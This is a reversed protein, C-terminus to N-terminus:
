NEVGSKSLRTNNLTYNQTKLRGSTAQTWDTFGSHVTGNLVDLKRFKLGSNKNFPFRGEDGLASCNRVIINQCNAIKKIKRRHESM